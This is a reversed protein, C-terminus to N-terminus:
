WTLLLWAGECDAVPNIRGHLSWSKDDLETGCKMFASFVNKNQWFVTVKADRKFYDNYVYYKVLNNKRSRDFTAM